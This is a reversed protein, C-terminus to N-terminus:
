AAMNLLLSMRKRSINTNSKGLAVLEDHFCSGIGIGGKTGIDTSRPKSILSWDQCVVGCWVVTM